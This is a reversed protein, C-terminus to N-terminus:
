RVRITERRTSPTSQFIFINHLDDCAPCDGETHLSHISISAVGKGFVARRTERRTSPTSQFTSEAVPLVFLSPRGGHPPLPNFYNVLLAQGVCVLRGGHPPLPNFYILVSQFMIQILDGETHLSHISIYLGASVGACAYDGETHLSHISILQIDPPSKRHPDGETHLSHISIIGVTVAFFFATLRGGHPPLPNFYKPNRSYKETDM